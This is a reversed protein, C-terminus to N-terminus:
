FTQSPVSAHYHDCVTYHHALASIVPMDQPTFCEMIVKYEAYEPERKRWTPFTNVFDTVFGNMPAVEPLSSPLNYPKRNFPEHRNADPLVTGFLQTNVHFYEEGPDPNPNTIRTAKSVPVTGREADRAYPPIPNSLNKGSVGEFTQGRPPKDFPPPNAPDYLWGLMNDFSRNELMLVVFLEIKDLNSSM